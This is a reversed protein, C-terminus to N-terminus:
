LGVSFVGDKRYRLVNSTFDIYAANVQIYIICKKKYPVRVYAFAAGFTIELM